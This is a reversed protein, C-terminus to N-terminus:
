HISSQRVWMLESMIGDSIFIGQRSLKLVGNECALLGSDIFKRANKLAYRHLEEGFQNKLQHLDVGWVTRLGTLIFENYKEENSLIETERYSEGTAM